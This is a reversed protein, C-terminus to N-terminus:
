FTGIQVPTGHDGTMDHRSLVTRSIVATGVPCYCSVRERVNIELMQGPVLYANFNNVNDCNRGFAYYCNNPGNNFIEIRAIEGTITGLSGAKAGMVDQHSDPLVDTAVNNPVTIPLLKLDYVNREVIALTRLM